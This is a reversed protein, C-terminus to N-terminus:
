KNKALFSRVNDLTKRAAESDPGQPKQTLYSQLELMASSYDKLGLMAHAKVLHVLAFNKPAMDEAKNLQKIATTFDGKGTYAKGLEYYGQWSTPSLAIGRDITRISDDFRSLNNYTAGLALYAMAYAPDCQIAQELDSVADQPTHNDLKMIGRLTLAAAYRPFIQLARGIHALAEDTKLAQLAADAKQLAERAKKPVKYESVSVSNANGVDASEHPFVQLTVSAQTTQLRLQERTENVGSTAVVEYTGFPVNDVEFYGGENSYTSSVSNGLMLDRVEIRINGMPKNQDSVVSGVISGRQSISYANQASAALTFAFFVATLAAARFM